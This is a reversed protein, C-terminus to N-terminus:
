LAFEDARRAFEQKSKLGLKAYVNMLHGQVTRDSIFLIEAIERHTLRRAALRAVERERPTLAALGLVAGAARRGRGGLERLRELCRDRRWTAHCSDFVSGARRLVTLAEDRDADVLARGLVEVARGHLIRYGSRELAVAADRAAAAADERRGTALQLWATGIGAIATHLERDVHKAVGALQEAAGAVAEVDGLEVALEAVDVLPVSAMPRFETAVLREAARRLMSLAEGTRGQRWALVAEAHVGCPRVFVWEGNGVSAWALDLFDRADALRGGETASLAGFIAGFAQRRVLRRSHAALIERVAHLSGRLDGALWRVSAEQALVNSDRWAPNVSKAEEFFRLAEDLRGEYGLSWGLCMLSWNALYLNGDARAVAASHRLAEEAEAFNGRYFAGVGMVGVARVTAFPEGATRAAEVVRRAGVELPEDCRNARIYALELATLLANRRDGAEEFLTIAEECSREAEELQRTGTSFDYGMTFYFSTLRAKVLARLAPAQSGDLVRDIERLARIGLTAHTDARFDVVWEARNSLVEAVAVWREDGPPLVDALAGLIQLGERWTGLEESQRLAERLVDVAEADGPDASRSFHAAAEGLRGHALLSRGVRRHLVRRRAGGIHEYIAEAMLPHSIEFVLKRGQEDEAVLGSRVLQELVPALDDVAVDVAATIERLEMRRGFIALVELAARSQVPLVKVRATVREALAEPISHLLPDALDAGEELLARLLGLAFLPNGRSREALWEVLRRPPTMGVVAEALEHIAGAPLPRLKVRTLVDLQELDFIVRSAAADEALEGSRASVIVLVPMAALDDALYHLADWSSADALHMDDLVVLVPGAAALRRLLAALAELLRPRPPAAAPSFARRAGISLVLGGLDEILGTCLRDVEAAPLSRFHRELAEAWLGFATTAGLAHGRASLVVPGPRRSGLIESTLRTKGEGPEGAILVCRFEGAAARAWAAEIAAIEQTRGVLRVM